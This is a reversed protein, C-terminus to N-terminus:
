EGKVEKWCERCLVVCEGSLKAFVRDDLALSKSCNNCNM